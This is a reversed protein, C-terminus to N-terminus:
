LKAFASLSLSGTGNSITSAVRHKVSKIALTKTVVHVIEDLIESEIQQHVSSAAFPNQSPFQLGSKQVSESSVMCHSFSEQVAASGQVPSPM